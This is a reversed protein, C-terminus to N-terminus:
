VRGQTLIDGAGDCRQCKVRSARQVGLTTIARQWGAGKCDPCNERWAGIIKLSEPHVERARRLEADTPGVLMGYPSAVTRRIRSRKASRVKVVVMIVLAAGSVIVVVVLIAFM